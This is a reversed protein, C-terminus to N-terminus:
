NGLSLGSSGCICGISAECRASRKRQMAVVRAPPLEEGANCARTMETQERRSAPQSDSFSALRRQRSAGLRHHRSMLRAACRARRMSLELWM